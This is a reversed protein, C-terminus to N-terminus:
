WLRAYTLQESWVVATSYKLSHHIQTYKESVCCRQVGVWGLLVEWCSARTPACLMNKDRILTHFVLQHTGIHTHTHTGSQSLDLISCHHLLNVIFFIAALLLSWLVCWCLLEICLHRIDENHECISRIHARTHTGHTAHTYSCLGLFHPQFRVGALHYIIHLM